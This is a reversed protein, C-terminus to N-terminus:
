HENRETGTDTKKVAWGRFRYRQPEHECREYVVKRHTDDPELVVRDPFDKPVSAHEGDKPGGLFEVVYDGAARFLMVIGIM